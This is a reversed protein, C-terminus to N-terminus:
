YLLGARIHNLYFAFAFLGVSLIASFSAYNFGWKDHMKVKGMKDFYIFAFAIIASTVICVTMAYSLWDYATVTSIFESMEQIYIIIGIMIVCLAIQFLFFINDKTASHIFSKHYDLILTYIIFNLVCLIGSGIATYRLIDFALEQPIM